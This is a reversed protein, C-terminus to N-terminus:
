QGTRASRLLVHSSWTMALGAEAVQISEGIIGHSTIGMDLDGETVHGENYDDRLTIIRDTAKSTREVVALSRSTKRGSEGCRACARPM